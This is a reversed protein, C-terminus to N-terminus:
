IASKMEGGATENEVPGEQIRSPQKTLLFSTFFFCCFPFSSIFLFFHDVNLMIAVMKCKM